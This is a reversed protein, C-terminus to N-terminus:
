LLRNTSLIDTRKSIKKEMNKETTEMAEKPLTNKPIPIRRNRTAQYKWSVEHAVRGLFCVKQNPKLQGVQPLLSWWGSKRTM